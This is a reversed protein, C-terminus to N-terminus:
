KVLLAKVVAYLSYILSILSLYFIFLNEKLIAKIVFVISAAFIVIFVPYYKKFNIWAWIPYKRQLFIGAVGSCYGVVSGVVVDLPFHAGVGVRTSALIVGATLIFFIWLIKMNKREPMMGFLIVTLITFVTISHGSPLSNTTSTLAKGIIVFQHHDLVAAPRPVAFYAKLVASLVASILSASILAEWIIPVYVFLVALLSLFIFADGFQTLNYETLPFQSLKANLYFYFDKQIAVYGPVSLAHEYILFVVISAIIFLPPYLVYLRVRNFNEKIQQNM